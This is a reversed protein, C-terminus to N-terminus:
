YIKEHKPKGRLRSQEAEKEKVVRMSFVFAEAERESWLRTDDALLQRHHHHM